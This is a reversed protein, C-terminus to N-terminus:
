NLPVRPSIEGTVLDDFTILKVDPMKTLEAVAEQLVAIFPEDPKGDRFYEWWHTVLVTLQQRNVLESISQKMTSYNRQCSLVCGPHSLLLTSGIRWHPMDRLKKLLYGPWWTFPLRALEYWGGSLVRFRRAVERLSSASLKDYPAVFTRPKPFGAEVLQQTGRDLRRRIEVSDDRDFEFWHHYCGHQLVHYADNDLLYRVLKQNAGIPITQATEGNKWGLYGEPSGDLRTTNTAVEPITALNVPVGKDLLPRYLRELCDIPTLANTDDDRLIVYRM